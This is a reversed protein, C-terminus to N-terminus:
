LKCEWMSEFTNMVAKVWKTPAHMLVDDAYVVFYCVIKSKSKIKWIGKAADCQEFTAETNDVYCRAEKLM